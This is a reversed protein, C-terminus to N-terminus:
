RNIKAIGPLWKEANTRYIKDVVSRPLKLGQFEGNVQTNRMKEDTTFFRWDALRLNHAHEKMQQPTKTGDVTLDTGYILRDQYKIVFDHVKKWNTIAQYQFHAVREAMDVAMNPFKDLRKALEDVSWELSGLHAGIFVLDPHKELMHDRAQIQQEYSPFEPHLYMHFQPHLSDYVRTSRVTMKDLPLWSNRSEGLHGIVPIHNKALYDLIPDFRPDDIMVIHGNKDKLDLGINKWIKVAIAGNAFSNKLYALAQEKWNNDTWNKVSFTTAFALRNAYEKQLKAAIKQQVEIPPAFPSENNINLLRFNDEESQKIFTTDDVRIHIHTDFKKVWKFDDIAYYATGPPAENSEKSNNAFCGQLFILITFFFANKLRVNNMLLVITKIIKNQDILEAHDVDEIKNHGQLSISNL